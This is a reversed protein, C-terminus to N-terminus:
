NGLGGLAKVFAEPTLIETSGYSIKRDQVGPTMQTRASYEMLNTYEVYGGGGVVFVIAENFSQRAPASTAGARGRPAKPDFHLYHDTEQLAQSSSSTPDMLSSVLRTITLDKQAPLFNKVGAVLNDLGSDKLRDTLQLLPM